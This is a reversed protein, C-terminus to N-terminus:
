FKTNDLFEGNIAIGTKLWTTSNKITCLLLANDPINDYVQTSDTLKKYPIEEFHESKTDWYYLPLSSTGAKRKYTLPVRHSLNPVLSRIKGNLDTLVPASIYRLDYKNVAEAVIFFSRGAVHDFQCIDGERKGIAIPRWQKDNYTCLYVLNSKNIGKKNTPIRLTYTPLMEEKTVDVFQPNKLFTVYGDDNSLNPLSSDFHRRYIKAPQLFYDTGMLERYNDPDGPNFDHFKGDYLVGCWNHGFDIRTWTTQYIAVPIGVARMLFATYNSLVECNGIGTQDTENITPQLPSGTEKSHLKEELLKNIIMCADLSNWVKASDLLPMYKHMLKERLNSIEENQSRYPLIYRCFDNFSTERAWPKKWADFALEINQILFDSRLAKNDYIIKREIRYGKARLSDCHRKVAHENPFKRTDLRYQEGEPSLFYEVKSFHFPMNLILYQAAKLKLTDNKYYELVKELESRNEGSMSLVQEINVKDTKSISCSSLLYILFVLYLRM